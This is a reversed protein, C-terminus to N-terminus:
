QWVRVYDIVYEAPNPTNGPPPSFGWDDGMGFSLMIFFPRNFPAPNTLPSQPTWNTLVQCVQENPTGADFIYKLENPKWELTYTHWEGKGSLYKSVAGQGHTGNSRMFHYNCYAIDNMGTNSFSEMIDIEGSRPWAGYENIASQIPDMWFAPFTGPGPPLKARMEFRGYTQSFKGETTIGGSRWTLNSQESWNECQFVGSQKVARLTLYGGSVQIYNPHDTFCTQSYSWGMSSWKSRDLEGGDFEDHWTCQWTGGGSKPPAQGGCPANAVDAGFQVYSGDSASQDSHVTVNGTRGSQTGEAEMHMVPGAAFSRILLLTGIASFVVVVALLSRTNFREWIKLDTGTAKRVVKKVTKKM